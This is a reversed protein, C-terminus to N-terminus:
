VRRHTQTASISVLTDVLKLGSASQNEVAYSKWRAEAM